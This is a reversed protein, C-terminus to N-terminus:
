PVLEASVGYVWREYSQGPITSVRRYYTVVGGIRFSASFQRLLSGGATYLHDVRPFSVGSITLPVLYKAEDFSATLRGLFDFPLGIEATGRLSTLVYANRARDGPSIVPTSSVFVDRQVTGVLRGAQRVPLAVEALLAPGRYSPLSGSSAAPFDRLGAFVRGTVLAKEGFELGGLYRFSRTKGLSPAAVAFEDEIVEGSAVATTMSTLRYRAEARGALSNRNLSAATFPNGGATSTRGDYRFSRGEAGGSLSLRRTIRWEAGGFAWREQRLTRSDIDISYLQRAQLGGGGGVLTFAGVDLEVRGQGGPDTSRETAYRQFYSWDLWGEGSLRLRRGVPVFGDVSGRVVVSTDAVPNTPDLFVNDDRGANRLELKPTFRLPGVRFRTKPPETKTYQAAAPIALGVALAALAATRAGRM